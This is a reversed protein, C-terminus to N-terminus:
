IAEKTALMMIKEQTAEEINIEGTIRGENLVYIRDCIGLLEQIESSVVLLTKGDKALNNIISYIESKAGVDIGKTPEDFIYISSQANLWKGLVVKQQNGGSLSSVPKDMDEVKINLMNIFKKTTEINKKHNLYFKNLSTLNINDKISLSLALGQKKRDETLLSIGNRVAELPSNIRVKKGDIMIEGNKKSDAGFLLRVLETRGSGVLGSFGVVEGKRCFFSIDKVKNKTDCLNKVELYKGGVKVAEKPYLNDLSRGVLKKIIQEESLDKVKDTSIYEGDRLITIRDCIEYIEKMRHSIYISSINSYKLKLIINFLNKVDQDSLSTTPEDFIIVKAKMSLARAIEVLQKNAPSLNEVLDSAKFNAGLQSLIRNTDDYLKKFDILGITKHRYPFRGMYVNEAVTISEALNLEQHVFGIGLKKSLEPTMQEIKRGEFIIDGSDKSIVGGLINMLTSKGAGNEGMLAHIEGKSVELEANKLVRVKGFSKNIKKLSFLKEM